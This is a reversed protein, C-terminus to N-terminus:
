HSKTDLWSGNKLYGLVNGRDATALKGRQQAPEIYKDYLEKVIPAIEADIDDTESPKSIFQGNQTLHIFIYEPAAPFPKSVLGYSMMPNSPCLGYTTQNENIYKQTEEREVDKYTADGISSFFQKASEKNWLRPQVTYVLNRDLHWGGGKLDTIFLTDTIKEQKQCNLDRILLDISDINKKGMTETLAKMADSNYKVIIDSEQSLIFYPAEVKEICYLMRKTYALNEDYIVTTYNPDAPMSFEKDLFLFVKQGTGNFLKKLYDIQIQLVDFHSSHSYICIPIVTGGGGRIKKYARRKRSAKRRLTRKNKKTKKVM